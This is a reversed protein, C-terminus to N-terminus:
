GTRVPYWRGSREDFELPMVLNRTAYKTIGRCRESGVPQRGCRPCTIVAPLGPIDGIVVRGGPALGLVATEGVGAKDYLYEQEEDSIPRRGTSREVKAESWPLTCVQVVRKSEMVSDREPLVQFDGNPLRCYGIQHEALWIQYRKGDATEQRHVHSLNTVYRPLAHAAISTYDTFSTPGGEWNEPDNLDADKTATFRWIRGLLAGCDVTANSVRGCHITFSDAHEWTIRKSKKLRAEVLGESV